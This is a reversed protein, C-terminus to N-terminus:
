SRPISGDRATVWRRGTAVAATPTSAATAVAQPDEPDDGVVVVPGSAATRAATASPAEGALVSAEPISHSHLGPMGSSGHM